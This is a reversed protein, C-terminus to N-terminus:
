ESEEVVVKVPRCMRFLARLKRLVTACAKDRKKGTMGIHSTLGAMQAIDYECQPAQARCCEHGWRRRWGSECARRRETTCVRLEVENCDGLTENLIVNAFIDNKVVKLSRNTWYMRELRKPKQRKKKGM